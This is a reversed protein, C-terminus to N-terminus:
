TLMVSRSDQPAPILLSVMAACCRGLQVARVREVTPTWSRRMKMWRATVTPTAATAPMAAESRTAATSDVIVGRECTTRGTSACIGVGCNTDAAVFDEDMRGDCDTDIGDCTDGDAGGVNPNCSDVVAGNM